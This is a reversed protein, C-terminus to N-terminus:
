NKSEKKTRVLVEVVDHISFTFTFVRAKKRINPIGKVM